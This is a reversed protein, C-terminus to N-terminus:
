AANLSQMEDGGADHAVGGEPAEGGSRLVLLATGREWELLQQMEPRSFHPALGQFDAERWASLGTASLGAAQAGPVGGALGCGVGAVLSTLEAGEEAPM